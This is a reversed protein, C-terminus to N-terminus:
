EPINVWGEGLHKQMYFEPLTEFIACTKCISFLNTLGHLM